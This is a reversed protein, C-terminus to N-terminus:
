LNEGKPSHAEMASDSDFESMDTERQVVAVWSQETRSIHKIEFGNLGSDNLRDRLEDMGNAHLVDFTFHRM